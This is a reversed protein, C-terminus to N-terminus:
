ERRRASAQRGAQDETMPQRWGLSEARRELDAEDALSWVPLLPCERSWLRWHAVPVLIVMVGTTTGVARREEPSCEAVSGVAFERTPYFGTSVDVEYDGRRMAALVWGLGDFFEALRYPVEVLTRIEIRSRLDARQTPVDRMRPEPEGDSWMWAVSTRVLIGGFCSPPRAADEVRAM